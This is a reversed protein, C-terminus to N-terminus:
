LSFEKPKRFEALAPVRADFLVRHSLVGGDKRYITARGVGNETVVAALRGGEALQDLIAQPVTDVAGEILIANYPAQDPCGAILEGEIPVVNDLALEGFLETARGLLGADSELAFVSGALRAMVAAAYGTGSAIDLVADEAGLDLEQLLRGLVVPEMLSRGAGLTLDEDVYAVGRLSEPLFRERPAAEISALLAEDIVKNPRLQGEIMNRRATAFDM